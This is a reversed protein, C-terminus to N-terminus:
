EQNHLAQLIEGAGQSLLNAAVRQGLELADSLQGSASAYLMTVGDPSGVLGRLTLTDQHIEAFSGIPVQCGGNLRANMSREAM